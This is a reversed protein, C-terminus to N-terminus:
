VVSFWFTAGCCRFATSPRRVAQRAARLSREAALSQTPRRACVRSPWRSLRLVSPGETTATPEGGGTPAALAM